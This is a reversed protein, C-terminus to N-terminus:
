SGGREQSLRQWETVVQLPGPNLRTRIALAASTRQYDEATMAHAAALAEATEAVPKMICPWMTWFIPSGRFRRMLFTWTKMHEPLARIHCARDPLWDLLTQVSISSWDAGELYDHARTAYAMAKRLVHPQIYMSGPGCNAWAGLRSLMEGYTAVFKQLKEPARMGVPMAAEAPMVRCLEMIPSSVETCWVWSHGKQGLVLSEAAMRSKKSHGSSLRMLGCARGFSACGFWRCVGSQTLTQMAVEFREPEEVRVRASATLAAAGARRLRQARSDRSDTTAEWERGFAEVAWPEWLMAQMYFGAPDRVGSQMLAHLDMPLWHGLVDTFKHVLPLVEGTEHLAHRLLPRIEM